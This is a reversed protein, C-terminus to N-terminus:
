RLFFGNKLPDTPDIVFDSQGVIFAHGTVEPVVAARGGFEVKKIVRGSFTTDIISEIQISDGIQVEGRADHIALRGSVGSGTPCRDVEGEAFVCVNRSHHEDRKPKDIFITGYLFSLETEYPHLIGQHHRAVAQKIAKGKQIIEQYHDPTISFGLDQIRLDVYAYFAGGYALDYHVAGLGPVEVVQSLDVVFSPVCHFRVDQVKGEKIQTYSTIRGCPADIQLINENENDPTKWGMSWILTSIAIIAHGCMTSYGENHLFIVGVDATSDSPPVLICGYMDAHGRPEFMLSQRLHDHNDRIFARRELVTDGEPDPYGSLIVRLPEGATHMEITSIVQQSRTCEVVAPLKSALRERFAEIREFVSQM